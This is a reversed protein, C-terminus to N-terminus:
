LEWRRCCGARPDLRPEGVQEGWWFRGAARCRLLIEFKTWIDREEILRNVEWCSLQAHKSVKVEAIKPLEIKSEKCSDVKVEQLKNNKNESM